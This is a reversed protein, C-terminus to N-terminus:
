CYNLVGRGGNGGLGGSGCHGANYWYDNIYMLTDM